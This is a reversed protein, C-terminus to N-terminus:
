VRGGHRNICYLHAVTGMLALLILYPLFAEYEFRIETKTGWKGWEGSRARALSSEEGAIFNVAFKESLRNTGPGSAVTYVGPSTIPLRIDRGPAPLSKETGDPSTLTANFDMARYAVDTGLRHNVERLGPQSLTRWHLLNWFLAPWQPTKHLTSHNEGHAYRLNIQHQGNAEARHTLLPVNGATIVPLYGDAKIAAPDAGWTVGLLTLGSTLEHNADVVFPGTYREPQKPLPMLRLGWARSGAPKSASQHIVLEPPQNTPSRLGTDELTDGILQALATNTVSLQVRVQRRLPPMLDVRNDGTLADPGLEAHLPPYDAPLAFMLRRTSNTGLVLNTQTILNTGATIRLTNTGTIASGNAIELLCRDEDRHATRAANVFSFNLRPKGFAEWVVRGPPIPGVPEHDTLVLIDSEKRDKAALAEQSLRRAFGIAQQLEAGPSQCTWRSFQDELEAPHRVKGGMARPTPGAAILQYSSFNREELIERLRELALARPTEGQPGALMSQSDDMVVILKRTTTPIQWRPGTAALVILLLVLLEIFFVLPLKPKEIRRGGERSEKHLQWLLLSSVRQKRFRHRLFYIAALAPLSLAAIWALPYTFVPM